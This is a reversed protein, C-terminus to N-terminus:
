FRYDYVLYPPRSPAGPAFTKVSRQGLRRAIDDLTSQDVTECSHPDHSDWLNRAVFSAVGAYIAEPAFQRASVLRQKILAAIVSALLDASTGFDVRKIKDAEDRDTPALKDIQGTELCHHAAFLWDHVIYAPGYGWPSFGVASRLPRPISGGDTYIAGPRISAINTRAAIAAPLYYTLPDGPFPYYIFKDEGDWFVMLRGSIRGPDAPDFHPTACGPFVALTAALATAAAM